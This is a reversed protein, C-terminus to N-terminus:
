VSTKMTSVRLRSIRNPNEFIPRKAVPCLGKKTVQVFRGCFRIV